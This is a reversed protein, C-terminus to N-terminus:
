SLFTRPQPTSSSGVRGATQDRDQLLYAQHLRPRDPDNYQADGGCGRPVHGPQDQSGVSKRGAHARLAAAVAGRQRFHGVEPDSIFLAAAIRRHGPVSSPARVPTVLVSFPRLGSARSVPLTGGASDVVGRAARAAGSILHELANAERPRRAALKGGRVVLGDSSALIERAAGNVIVPAGGQDCLVVATPLRDLVEVAANREVEMLALQRRMQVASRLHPALTRCLRIKEFGFLADKRGRFFAFYCLEDNERLLVASLRYFLGQPELWEQYFKTEILEADAVLERGVHVTGPVRYSEEHRLWPDDRAYRDRYSNLFKPSYGSSWDWGGERHQFNFTALGCARARFLRRLANLLEPIVEASTATEYILPVLVQLKNGSSM